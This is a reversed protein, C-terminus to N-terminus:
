RARNSYLCDTFVAYLNRHETIAKLMIQDFMVMDKANVVHNVSLQLAAMPDSSKFGNGIVVMCTRRRQTMDMRNINGLLLKLGSKGDFDDSIVMTNFVHYQMRSLAAKSDNVMVAQYDMGTLTAHVASQIQPDDICILATNTDDYLAPGSGTAAPSVPADPVAGDPAAGGKVEIKRKCKPCNFYTTKGKPIKHDPINIRAQCHRCTVNM